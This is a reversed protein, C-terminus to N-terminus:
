AKSDCDDSEDKATDLLGSQAFVIGYDGSGFFIFSAQWGKHDGVFGSISGGAISGIYVASQHLSMARSRTRPGHLDSIMSMAAPFYFAEGLGGLTARL